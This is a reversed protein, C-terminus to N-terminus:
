YSDYINRYAPAVQGNHFAGEFIYGYESVAIGLGDPQVCDNVQGYYDSKFGDIDINLLATFENHPRYPLLGDRILGKYDLRAM